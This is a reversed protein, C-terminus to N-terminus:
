RRVPIDPEVAAPVKRCRFLIAQQNGCATVIILSARSWRQWCCTLSVAREWGPCTRAMNFLLEPLHEGDPFSECFFGGSGGAVGPLVTEEVGPLPNRNSEGSAKLAM